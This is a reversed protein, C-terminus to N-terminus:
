LLKKGRMEAKPVGELTLLRRKMSLGMAYGGLGGGTRVVRHCPLVIMLPNKNMTNGVFRAGRPFGSRKALEQYTILKGRKVKALNKLVRQQSPSLASLDLPIGRFSVPAGMSYELLERGMKGLMVDACKHASLNDPTRKLFSVKTIGRPSCEIKFYGLGTKQFMYTKM